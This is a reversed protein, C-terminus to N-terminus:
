DLDTTPAVRAGENMASSLSGHLARILRETELVKAPLQWRIKQLERWCALADDDPMDAAYVSLNVHAAAGAVRWVFSRYACPEDISEVASAFAEFARQLDGVIM